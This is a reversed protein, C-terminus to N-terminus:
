RSKKIYLKKVFFKGNMETEVSLLNNKKLIERVLPLGYGHLNGKTSFGEKEIKEFNIHKTCTNSFSFVIDEQEFDIDLILYKEQEEELAEIANDLFVGIVKSIDRLNESCTKWVKRNKLASSVNIHVEAKPYKIHAIKFYILGKLGGDPIYKLQNLISRDTEISEEELLEKIYDRAKKTKVMDKLLVLQNRYEHQKKSKDNLEREYIKSYELLREYEWGLKNNKTKQQFFGIVFVVTCVFFIIYIFTEEKTRAQVSIPYTVIAFSIVILIIFFITNVKDNEKYWDMIKAFTEKVIKPYTIILFIVIIMLNGLLLGLTEELFSFEIGLIEKFVAVFIVESISYSIFILLTSILTKVLSKDYFLKLIIFAGINMVFICLGPSTTKRFYCYVATVAMIIVINRLRMKFEIDMTRTFVYCMAIYNLMGIIMWSIIELM